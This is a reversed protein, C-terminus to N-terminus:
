GKKVKVMAPRVVQGRYKYGAQLEEAVVENEGEGGEDFSVAEHEDPNFAAGESSNIMEIGMGRLSSTLSGSLRSFGDLWKLFAQSGKQPMANVARDIDDLVPLLRMVLKSEALQVSRAEAAQMNKRYNEFDARTRQLDALLEAKEQALKESVQNEVQKNRIM